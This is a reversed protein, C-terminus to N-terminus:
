GVRPPRSVNGEKDCMVRVRDERMDMTMMSDDPMAVVQNLDPREAKIAAVAEEGNKGM